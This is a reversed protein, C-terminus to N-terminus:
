PANEAHERERSRLGANAQETDARCLPTHHPATCQPPPPAKEGMNPGGRGEFGVEFAADSGEIGPPGLGRRWCAPVGALGPSRTEKRVPKQRMTEGQDKILTCRRLDDPWAEWM